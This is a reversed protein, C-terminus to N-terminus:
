IHKWHEFNVIKWISCRSVKFIAALKGASFKWPKYMRRIEIIQHETLKASGSRTGIAPNMRGKNLCDQTNDKHTGPFLHDPNVCSPNDCKHCILTTNAIPGHAIQWSIRHAMKRKNSPLKPRKRTRMPVIQGYGSKTRDGCWMWCGTTEDKFVKSWFREHFDQRHAMDKFHPLFGELTL